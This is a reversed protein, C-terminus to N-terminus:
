PETMQSAVPIKLFRFDNQPEEGNGSDQGESFTLVRWIPRETAFEPQERSQGSIPIVIDSSLEINLLFQGHRGKPGLHILRPL